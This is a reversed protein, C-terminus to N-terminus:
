HHYASIAHTTSFEVVIHDRGGRDRLVILNELKTCIDCPVYYNRMPQLKFSEFGTSSSLYTYVHIFRVNIKKSNINVDSKM